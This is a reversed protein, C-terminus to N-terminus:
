SLLIAKVHFSEQMLIFTAVAACRRNAYGNILGKVFFICKAFWVKILDVKFTQSMLLM